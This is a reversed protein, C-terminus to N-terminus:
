LEELRRSSKPLSSTIMQIFSDVEAELNERKCSVKQPNRPLAGATFQEKGLIHLIAHSFKM